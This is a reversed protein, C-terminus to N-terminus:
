RALRRTNQRGAARFSETLKRNSSVGVDRGLYGLRARISHVHRDTYWMDPPPRAGSEVKQRNKPWGERTIGTM